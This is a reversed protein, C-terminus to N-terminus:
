APPRISCSRRCSGCSRQAACGGSRSAMYGVERCVWEIMKVLDPALLSFRPVVELSFQSYTDVVPLSRLKSGTALQDHVFDM